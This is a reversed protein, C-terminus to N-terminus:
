PTRVSFRGALRADRASTGILVEFSGPEVVRHLGVDLLALDDATLTFRVERFEGPTLHLKEWRKLAIVPQAISALRDRLYLQAVATGAREATNRVLFRVTVEGDAAISDPEIRLAAFDFSAYSLGHGFPFLPRGARDLYDDGRGTPKHSYYLPLQGEHLPFTIPLRGGPDRDGVLVDTLGEGGQQGPYWAMLVAGVDDLWASMVVPSGGVIVVVTPTGTAAVARILAEQSGPLALSARDRFEGEEVGVVVVAVESSEAVAVAAAIAQSDAAADGGEWLLRIRGNGVGERFELRIAHQGGRWSAATAHRGWSGKDWRDLVLRGDIWLRYGDDGEVALRRARDAPLRIAGTWCVAFWEGRVGPAPPSFTWHFRVMPDIRTATPTGVPAIGTFYEGRLGAVPAGDDTTTFASAPVDEWASTSRGPGPAYRVMGEGLRATLATRLSVPAIGPGSYGGLRVSDADVGILAVRDAGAALPLVGDNVLLVTSQVAAERALALHEAHGNWYAASDVDAEPAEFLGLAFKARLVRSVARDILSDPVSGDTFARLWPRHQEWSSQFVVDLGAELARRASTAVSAETQHLVTAGATAAADSIVFGDFGWRDRLVETLLYRNQSAPMGDVSNYATMVSRAGGQDFTARFPPFWVERLQRESVEIPWSDRGGEGVNAVFHKPTTIVGMREFPSVFAVGMASALRVDEGYTEETRGWRADRSLNVVPSLVQRIGRSRVERAIATAVDGMLATDWTAALAIAQPFATAGPRTLGHLAEDFPILPIGLRTSDRFWRQLDNLSAAHSWAATSSSDLAEVQLGFAGHRYDHSPDDRSGPIMFLQWFKEEPTMRAVLDAVRTEVPHSPNRYSESQAPLQGTLALAVAFLAM